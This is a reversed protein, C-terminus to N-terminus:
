WQEGLHDIVRHVFREVPWAVQISTSISASPKTDTVSLPRPM